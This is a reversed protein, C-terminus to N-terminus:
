DVSELWGEEPNFGDIAAALGATDDDLDREINRGQHNAIFSM